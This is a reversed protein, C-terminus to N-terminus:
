MILCICCMKVYNPLYEAVYVFAVCSWLTLCICFIKAYAFLYEVAFLRLTPYSAVPPNLPNYPPSNPACMCEFYVTHFEWFIVLVGGINRFRLSQYLFAWVHMFWGLPFVNDGMMIYIMAQWEGLFVVWLGSLSVPFFYSQHAHRESM